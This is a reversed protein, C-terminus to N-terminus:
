MRPRVVESVGTGTQSGAHAGRAVRARPRPPVQVQPAITHVDRTQGDVALPRRLPQRRSGLALSILLERLQTDFRIRSGCRFRGPDRKRIERCLEDNAEVFENSRTFPAHSRGIV